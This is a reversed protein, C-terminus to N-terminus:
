QLATCLSYFSYLSYFPRKCYPWLGCGLIRTPYISREATERESFKLILERRSRHRMLSKPLLPILVAMIGLSLGRVKKRFFNVVKKTTTSLVCSVVALNGVRVRWSEGSGQGAFIEEWIQYKRRRPLPPQV